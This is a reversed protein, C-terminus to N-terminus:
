QKAQYMDEYNRENLWRKSALRMDEPLTMIATRCKHYAIEAVEESPFPKGENKAFTMFDNLPGSVAANRRRCYEAIEEEITM